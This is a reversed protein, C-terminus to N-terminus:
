GWPRGAAAPPTSHPVARTRTTVAPGPASAPLPPRPVRTRTTPRPAPRGGAPRRSRRQQPPQRPAAAPTTPQQRRTPQEQCSPRTRRPTASRPVGGPETRLPRSACGRVSPTMASGSRPPSSRWWCRGSSASCRGRSWGAAGGGDAPERQHEVRRRGRQLRVGVPEREGVRGGAGAAGPHGRGHGGGAATRGRGGRARREAAAAGSAPDTGGGGCRRGAADAGRGGAAALDPRGAPGAQSLTISQGTGDKCCNTSRPPCSSRWRVAPRATSRSPWVSCWSWSCGTPRPWCRPAWRRRGRRQRDARGRDRGARGGTGGRGPRDGRGLRGAPRHPAAVEWGAPLPCRRSAVLALALVVLVWLLGLALTPAM